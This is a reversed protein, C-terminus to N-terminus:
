GEGPPPVVLPGDGEAKGALEAMHDVSAHMEDMVGCVRRWSEGTGSARADLGAQNLARVLLIFGDVEDRLELYRRESPLFPNTLGWVGAEIILIGVLVIALRTQPNADSILILALFVIVAGVIPISAQILNRLRRVSLGGQEPM